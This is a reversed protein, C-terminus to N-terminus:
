NPFIPISLIAKLTLFRTIGSQKLGYLSKKLKFVFPIWNEVLLEFGDIQKISIDDEIPANSFATKIDIPKM